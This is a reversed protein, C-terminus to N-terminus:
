GVATRSRDRRAGGRHDVGGDRDARLDRVARAVPPRRPDSRRARAGHLGGRRRRGLVRARRFRVSSGVRREGGRRDGLVRRGDVRRAALREPCHSPLLRARRPGAPVAGDHARGRAPRGARRARAARVRDRQRRRDGPVSSFARAGSRAVRRDGDGASRGVSRGVAGGPRPREPNPTRHPDFPHGM